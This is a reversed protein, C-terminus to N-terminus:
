LGLLLFNVVIYDRSLKDYIENGLINFGVIFFYLIIRIVSSIYVRSTQPWKGQNIGM